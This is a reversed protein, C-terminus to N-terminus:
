PPIIEYADGSANSNLFALVWRYHRNLLTTNGSTAMLNPTPSNAPQVGSPDTGGTSYEDFQGLVHGTEHAYTSTEGIPPDGWHSGARGMGSRHRAAPPPPSTNIEVAVHEGSAVFNVDLRFSAKCCDFTCDCAQGRRCNTRHFKKSSFGDNWVTEIRSKANAQKTADFSAGFLRLKLSYHVRDAELRADHLEVVPAFGNNTPHNVDRLVWNTTPRQRFTFENSSTCTLGAARFRFRIRDTRWNATQAKATWVAVFHGNTMAPSITDVVSGNTPHLIEVTAVGDPANGVISGELMVLDGCYAQTEM